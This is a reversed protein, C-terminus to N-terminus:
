SCLSSRTDPSSVPDGLSVGVLERYSDSLGQTPSYYDAAGEFTYYLPVAQTISTCVLAAAGTLIAQFKSKKM